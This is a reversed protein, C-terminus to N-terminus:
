CVECEKLVQKVMRTILPFYYCEAVKNWTKKIRLHGTTPAKYLEKVFQKRIRELLYVMGKFRILGLGDLKFNTINDEALAQQV